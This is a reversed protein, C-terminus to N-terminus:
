PHHHGQSHAASEPAGSGQSEPEFPAEIPSLRAGLGELMAEIVKDARIRLAAKTIEVPLHRNGIHWALRALGPADHAAAEILQEPLAKIAILRGDELELADGDRLHQAQPLDLLFQLGGVGSMHFRRRHRDEFDLLVSDAVPGRWAGRRHVLRAHPLSADPSPM